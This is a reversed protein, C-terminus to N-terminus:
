LHVGKNSEGMFALELAYVLDLVSVRGGSPGQEGLWDPSTIESFWSDYSFYLFGSAATINVLSSEM